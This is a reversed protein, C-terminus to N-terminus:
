FLKWGHKGFFVCGSQAFMRVHEWGKRAAHGGFHVISVRPVYAVLGTQALRWSLDFDEFYLFYAPDFGGSAAIASRRLFMFCGSAIDIPAVVRDGTEARMEYRTLRRDFIRKLWNPAFGRLLFDFVSPYHKCLYLREGNRDRAAPTLLLVRPEVQMFALAADLADPALLVDPNLVLHFDTQTVLLALNHGRGYGINGHGTQIKVDIDQDRLVKAADGVVAAASAPGNDILWVEAEDLRGSGRALAIAAALSATTQELAARDPAFVVISVSLSAPETSM